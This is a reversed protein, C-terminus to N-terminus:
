LSRLLPDAKSDGCNLVRVGWIVYDDGVSLPTQNVVQTLNMKADKCGLALQALVNTSASRVRYLIGIPWKLSRLDASATWEAQSTARGQRGQIVVILVAWNRM